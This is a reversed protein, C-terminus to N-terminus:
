KILVHFLRWTAGSTDVGLEWGDIVVRIDGAHKAAIKQGASILTGRKWQKEFDALVHALASEMVAAHGDRNSVAIKESREVFHKFINGIPDGGKSTKAPNRAIKWMRQGVQMRVMNPVKLGVEATGRVAAKKMNVVSQWGEAEVIKWHVRTAVRNAVKGFLRGLQDKMAQLPGSVSPPFVAPDFKRLVDWLARLAGELSSRVSPNNVAMRVAKEVTRAYRGLKGTKAIDGLVPIVGLLSIGAGLWDGRRASLGSSTIDAVGTPDFIGVIDLAIIALEEVLDQVEDKSETMNVVVLVKQPKNFGKFPKRGTSLFAGCVAYIYNCLTEIDQLM